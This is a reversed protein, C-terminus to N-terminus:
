GLQFMHRLKDLHNTGPLGRKEGGTHMKRLHKNTEVHSALEEASHTNRKARLLSGRRRQRRSTAPRNKGSVRRNTGLPIARKRKVLHLILSTLYGKNLHNDRNKKKNKVYTKADICIYNYGNKKICKLIAHKKYNVLKKNAKKAHMGYYCVFINHKKLKKEKAGSLSYYFDHGYLIDVLLTNKRNLERPGSPGDSRRQTVLPHTKAVDALHASHAINTSDASDISDASVALDAAGSAGASGASSPAGGGLTLLNIALPFTYNSVSVNKYVEVTPSFITHLDRFIEEQIDRYESLCITRGTGSPPQGMRGRSWSGRSRNGSLGLSAKGLHVDDVSRLVFNSAMKQYKEASWALHSQKAARRQACLQALGGVSRVNKFLKFYRLPLSNYVPTVQIQELQHTSRLHKINKLIYSVANETCENPLSCFPKEGGRTSLLGLLGLFSVCEEVSNFNVFQLIKHVGLHHLLNYLNFNLLVKLLRELTLNDLFLIEKEMKYFHRIMRYDRVNLRKFIDLLHLTTHPTLRENKLSNVMKLCVIKYVDLYFNFCTIQYEAEGPPPNEGEQTLTPPNVERFSDRRELSIFQTLNKKEELKKVEEGETSVQAPYKFIFHDYLFIKTRDRKRRKKLHSTDDHLYYVQNDKDRQLESPLTPQDGRQDNQRVGNDGDCLLFVEEKQGERKYVKPAYRRLEHFLCTRVYLYQYVFMAQSFSLEKELCVLRKLLIKELRVFPTNTGRLAHLLLLIQRATLFENRYIIEESLANLFSEESPPNVFSEGQHAAQSVRILYNTPQSAVQPPDARSGTLEGRETHHDETHQEKRKEDGECSRGRGVYVRLYDWIHIRDKQLFPFYRGNIAFDRDLSAFLVNTVEEVKFCQLKEVIAHKVQTLFNSLAEERTSGDQQEAKGKSYNGQHLEKSPVNRTTPKGGPPTKVPSSTTQDNAASYNTLAQNNTPGGSLLAASGQSLQGGPSHRAGHCQGSRLANSFAGCVHVASLFTFMLDTPNFLFLNKKIVQIFSRTLYFFHNFQEFHHLFYLSYSYFFLTLSHFNLNKLDNHIKVVSLHFIESTYVKETLSIGRSLSFTILALDKYSVNKNMKILISKAVLNLFYLNDFKHKRLLLMLLSLERITLKYMHSEMKECIFNLVKKELSLQKSLLKLIIMLDVYSTVQNSYLKLIVVYLYNRWLAKSKLNKKKSLQVSQRISPMDMSKLTSVKPTNAHTREERYAEYMPYVRLAKLLALNFRRLFNLQLSKEYTFFFYSSLISAVEFLSFENYLLVNQIIFFFPVYEAKILFLEFCNILTGENIRSWYYLIYTSFVYGLHNYQEKAIRVTTDGKTSSSKGGLLIVRRLQNVYRQLNMVNESYMSGIITFLLNSLYGFTLFTLLDEPNKYHAIEVSSMYIHLYNFMLFYQLYLNGIYFYPTILRWLQGEYFVKGFDFLILKYINKNVHMCISLLLTCLLYLKTIPPTRRFSKIYSYLYNNEIYDVNFLAKVSETIESLSTSPPSIFLLPYHSRRKVGRATTKPDRCYNLSFKKKKKKVIKNKEKTFYYGHQPTEKQKKDSNLPTSSRRGTRRKLAETGRPPEAVRAGGGLVNAAFKNAGFKNAAFRNSCVRAHQQRVSLLIVCLPALLRRLLCM